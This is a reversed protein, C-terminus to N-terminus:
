AQFLIHRFLVFVVALLFFLLAVLLAVAAATGSDDVEDQTDDEDRLEDEALVDTDVSMEGGAGAASTMGEVGRLIGYRKAGPGCAGTAGTAGAM